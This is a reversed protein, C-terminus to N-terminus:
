LAALPMAGTYEQTQKFIPVGLLLWSHELVAVYRLQQGAQTATGLVPRWRHGIVVGQIAAYLGRPKVVGATEFYEALMMLKMGSGLTTTNIASGNGLPTGPPLSGLLNANPMAPPSSGRSALLVMGLSFFIALTIGFRQRLLRAAQVTAYLLGLAVVVNFASWLLNAM